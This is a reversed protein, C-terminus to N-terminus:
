MWVNIRGNRTLIVIKQKCVVGVDVDVLSALVIAVHAEYENPLSSERAVVHREGHQLYTTMINKMINKMMKM